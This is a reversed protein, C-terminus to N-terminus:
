RLGGIIQMDELETVRQELDAVRDFPKKTLDFFTVTKSDDAFRNNVFDFVRM